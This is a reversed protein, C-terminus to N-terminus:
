VSTSEEGKVSQYKEIDSAVSAFVTGVTGIFKLAIILAISFLKHTSITASNANRLVILAVSGFVAAIAGIFVITLCSSFM